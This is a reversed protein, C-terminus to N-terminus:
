PSQYTVGGRSLVWYTERLIEVHSKGELDDDGRDKKELEKKGSNIAGLMCAFLENSSVEINSIFAIM